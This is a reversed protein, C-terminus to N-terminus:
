YKGGMLQRSLIYTMPNCDSVIITKQLLIYHRFKQVAQVAALALKEVYSYKVETDNLNRSLYYIPHQIGDEAQVLVMAITTEAAVIYLFYDNQYNPPYMLSARVLHDKVADFSAQAVQDWHFPVGKKLLKIFGKAM